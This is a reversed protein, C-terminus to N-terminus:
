DWSNRLHTLVRGDRAVSADVVIETAPIVAHHFWCDGHDAECTPVVPWESKPLGLDSDGNWGGTNSM